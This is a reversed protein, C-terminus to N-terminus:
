LPIASEGACKGCKTILLDSRYWRARSLLLLFLQLCTIFLLIFPVFVEKLPYM